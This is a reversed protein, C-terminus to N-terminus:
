YKEYSKPNNKFINLYKNAIKNQKEIERKHKSTSYNSPKEFIHLLVIKDQHKFYLIRIVTRFDKPNLIEFFSYGRLPKSIPPVPRGQNDKIFNIKADIDALIKQKRKITCDPDNKNLLFNFFYEKVPSFKLDNDYYYVVNM